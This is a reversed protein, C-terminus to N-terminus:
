VHELDVPDTCAGYGYGCGDVLSRVDDVTLQADDYTIHAVYAGPDVEVKSVGRVRSLQPRLGIPSHEFIVQEIAIDVRKM